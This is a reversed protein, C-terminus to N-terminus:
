LTAVLIGVLYKVRPTESPYRPSVYVIHIQFQQIPVKICNTTELQSFFMTTNPAYQEQTTYIVPITMGPLWKTLTHYGIHRSSM